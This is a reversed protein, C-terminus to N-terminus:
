LISICANFLRVDLWDKCGILVAASADTGVPSILVNMGVKGKGRCQRLEM